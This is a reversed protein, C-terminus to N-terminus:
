TTMPQGAAPARRLRQCLIIRLRKNLRLQGANLPKRRGASLFRCLLALFENVMDIQVAILRESKAAPPLNDERRLAELRM